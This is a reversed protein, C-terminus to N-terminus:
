LLSRPSVQLLKRTSLYGCLGTLAALLLPLLLWLLWNSQYSLEFREYLEGCAIEVGLAAFGGALLGLLSYEALTASRLYNRSAGFARM